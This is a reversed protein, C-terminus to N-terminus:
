RKEGTFKSPGREDFARTREQFDKATGSATLLVVSDNREELLVDDSM